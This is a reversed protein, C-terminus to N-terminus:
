TAMTKSVTFVCSSSFLGAFDKCLLICLGPTEYSAPWRRYVAIQSIQSESGAVGGQNESLGVTTFSFLSRQKCGLCRSWFKNFGRFAPSNAGSCGRFLGRYCGKEDWILKSNTPISITVCALTLLLQISTTYSCFSDHKHFDRLAKTVQTVWMCVFPATVSLLKNHLKDQLAM